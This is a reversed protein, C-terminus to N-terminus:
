TLIKGTQPDLWSPTALRSLLAQRDTIPRAENLHRTVLDGRADIQHVVGSPAPLHSLYAKSLAGLEGTQWYDLMLMLHRAFSEVIRGSDTEGFGEEDLATGLPILGAGHETMAVTRIMSGFVLWAPPENEKAEAPWGLRGGGVLGGNVRIADPWGFEIPREPPALAIVADILANMGAYFAFRAVKLPEEPELIVAFEALDFRGVYVLTGAGAEPAIRCAHQFADGVERLTVLAYPPPLDLTREGRTRVRKKAEVAM